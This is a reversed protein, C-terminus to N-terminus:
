EFLLDVGFVVLDVGEVLFDGLEVGEVLLLEFGDM